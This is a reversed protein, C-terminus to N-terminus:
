AHLPNTSANHVRIFSLFESSELPKSFYYGQIKNAGAKLVLELQEKTEVGEQIVNLRFKRIMNITEVLFKHSNPNKTDWLLGKDSKINKFDNYIVQILNSYGTGFDDLSFTFGLRRLSEYHEKVIENDMLSASETVELNIQKSTVGYKEMISRFLIDTDEVFLQFISLNVEIEKLGFKEPQNEHLFQCVKEFVIRGIDNIMGNQEAIPIFEMPPINGFNVDNLRVLAEASDFLSTDANWIPQFHVDFSKELIAKQLVQELDVRRKVKEIDEERHVSIGPKITDREDDGLEALIEPKQIEDPVRVIDISVSLPLSVNNFKNLHLENSNMFEKFLTSFEDCEMRDATSIIAIKDQAIRYVTGKSNKIVWLVVNKVMEELDDNKFMRLYSKFNLLSIVMVMYKRKSRIYRENDAIFMHRNYVGTMADTHSDEMEILLMVGMLSLAECFLELKFWQFFFQVMVGMLCCCIFIWLATAATKLLVSRYLWLQQVTFAMYGAAEAYILLEIPGRTFLVNDQYYFILGTFPNTLVFFELLFAPSLFILAGRRSHSDGWNNVLVVYLAFLPALLTHLAFYITQCFQQIYNYINMAPSTLPDMMTSLTASISTFLMNFMILEFVKSRDKQPTKHSYYYIICGLMVMM